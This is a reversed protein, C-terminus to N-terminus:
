HALWSHFLVDFAREIWSPPRRAVEVTALDARTQAQAAAEAAGAKRYGDAVAQDRAAQRELATASADRMSTSSACAGLTVAVAVAGLATIARSRHLTPTPRNM